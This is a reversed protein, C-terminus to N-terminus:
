RNQNSRPGKIGGPRVFVAIALLVFAAVTSWETGDVLFHVILLAFVMTVLVVYLWPYRAGYPGIVGARTTRPEHSPQPMLAETTTNGVGGTLTPARACRDSSLAM